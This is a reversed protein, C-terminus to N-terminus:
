ENKVSAARHPKTDADPAVVSAVVSFCYTPQVRALGCHRRSKGYRSKSSNLFNKVFSTNRLSIIKACQLRDIIDSCTPYFCISSGLIPPRNQNTSNQNRDGAGYLHFYHHDTRWVCCRELNTKRRFTMKTENACIKRTGMEMRAVSRRRM